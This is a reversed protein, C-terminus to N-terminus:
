VNARFSKVFEVVTKAVVTKKTMDNISAPAIVCINKSNLEYFLINTGSIGITISEKDWLEYFGKISKIDKVTILKVSLNNLSSLTVTNKYYKNMLDKLDAPIKEAVKKKDVFKYGSNTLKSIIDNTVDKRKEDFVKFPPLLDYFVVADMVEDITNHILYPLYNKQKTEITYKM